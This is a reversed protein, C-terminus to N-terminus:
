RQGIRMWNRMNIDKCLKWMFDQAYIARSARGSASTSDLTALTVRRVGRREMAYLLEALQTEHSPLAVRNIPILANSLARLTRNAERWFQIMEEFTWSSQCHLTHLRSSSAPPLPYCIKFSCRTLTLSKLSTCECLAAVLHERGNVSDLTLSRVFRAMNHEQMTRLLICDATVHVDLISKLHPCKSSMNYVMSAKEETSGCNLQIKKLATHAVIALISSQAELLTLACVAPCQLTVARAFNIKASVLVLNKLAPLPVAM